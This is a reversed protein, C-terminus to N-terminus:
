DKLVTRLSHLISSSDWVGHHSQDHAAEVDDVIQQFLTNLLKARYGAGDREPKKSSKVTGDANLTEVKEVSMHWNSYPGETSTLRETPTGKTYVTGIHTVISGFRVAPDSIKQEFLLTGDANYMKLWKRLPDQETELRVTKGNAHYARWIRSKNKDVVLECWLTGDDRYRKYIPLAYDDDQSFRWVVIGAKNRVEFETFTGKDDIEASAISGAATVHTVRKLVGTSDYYRTGKTNDAYAIELERLVGTEDRKECRYQEGTKEDRQFYRLTLKAPAVSQKVPEPQVSSSGPWWYWAALAALLALFLYKTTKRM